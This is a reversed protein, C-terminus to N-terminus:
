SEETNVGTAQQIARLTNIHDNAQNVVEGHAVKEAEKGQALQTEVVQLQKLVMVRANILAQIYSMVSEDRGDGTININFSFDAATGEEVALANRFKEWRKTKAEKLMDAEKAATEYNTSGSAVKSVSRDLAPNM